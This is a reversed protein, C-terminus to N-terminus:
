TAGEGGGSVQRPSPTFLGLLGTLLPTFVILVKDPSTKDNGDLVTWLLGILTVGLLALLGIVIAWWLGEVKKPSGIPASSAVATVAAEKVPVSENKVADLAKTVAEATEGLPKDPRAAALVNVAARKVTEPETQVATVVQQVAEARETPTEVV